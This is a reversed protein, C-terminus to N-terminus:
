SDRERGVQNDDQWHMDRAHVHVDHNSRSSLLKLVAMKAANLSTFLVRPSGDFVSSCAKPGMEMIFM